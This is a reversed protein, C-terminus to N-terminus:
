FISHISNVDRLTSVFDMEKSEKTTFLNENTRKVFVIRASIGSRTNILQNCFFFVFRSNKIQLMELTKVLKVLCSSQSSLSNHAELRTFKISNYVNAVMFNLLSAITETSRECRAVFSSDSYLISLEQSM